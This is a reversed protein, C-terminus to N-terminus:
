NLNQIKQHLPFTVAGSMIAAVNDGAMKLPIKQQNM